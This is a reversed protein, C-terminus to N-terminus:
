ANLKKKLAVVTDIGVLSILMLVIAFMKNFSDGTPPTPNKAALKATNNVATTAIKEVEASLYVGGGKPVVVYYKGDADKVIEVKEGTLGNYVAKLKYGDKVDIGVLIKEGEFGINYGESTGLEGGNANSALLAYGEGEEIKIIYMIRSETETDTVYNYDDNLVEAINGDKNPIIKWVTLNLNGPVANGKSIAIDKADLTGDIVINATGMFKSEEHVTEGKENQYTDEWGNVFIGTGSTVLDGMIKINAVNDESLLNLNLGNAYDESTATVSGNVMVNTKAGDELEIYMGTAVASSTATVNGNVTVDTTSNQNSDINICIADSGSKAVMDGNSKINVASDDYSTVGLASAYGDGNTTASIGNNVSVNAKGEDSTYSYVGTTAPGLNSEGATSTATVKGEVTVNATGGEFADVLVGTAGYSKEGSTASVDGKVNLTVDSKSAGPAYVDVGMASKESENTEVTVNGVTKDEGETYVTKNADPAEEAFTAIPFITVLAVMAMSIAIRLKRKRM